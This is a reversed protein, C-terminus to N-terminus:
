WTRSPLVREKRAKGEQRRPSFSKRCDIVNAKATGIPRLIHFFSTSEALQRHNDDRVNSRTLHVKPILTRVRVGARVRLFPNERTHNDKGGGVSPTGKEKQGAM